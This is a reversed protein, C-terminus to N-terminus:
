SSISSLKPMAHDIERTLTAVESRLSGIHRQIAEVTPDTSDAGVAADNGVLVNHTNILEFLELAAGQAPVM